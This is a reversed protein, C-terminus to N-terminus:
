NKCAPHGEQGWVLRMLVSFASFHCWYVLVFGGLVLVVKLVAPCIELPLRMRLRIVAM